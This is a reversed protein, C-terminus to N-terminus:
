VLIQAIKASILSFILYQFEHTPHNKRFDNAQGGGLFDAM